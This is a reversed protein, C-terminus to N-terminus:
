LLDRLVWLQKFWSKFWIRSRTFEGSYENFFPPCKFVGHPRLVVNILNPTINLRAEQPFSNFIKYLLWLSLKTCKTWVVILGGTRSGRALQRPEHCFLCWLFVGSFAVCRFCLFYCQISTEWWIMCFQWFYSKYSTSHFIGNAATVLNDTKWIRTKNRQVDDALQVV